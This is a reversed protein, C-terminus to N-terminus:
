EAPTTDVSEQSEEDQQDANAEDLPEDSLEVLGTVGSADSLAPLAGVWRARAIDGVGNTSLTELASQVATQLEASSVAVGVPVVEGITGAFSVSGYATALYAGSYADCVVCDVTGAELADFAENLNAFTQQTVDLSYGLLASQSVSNEQVGVRVGSLDSADVPASVSSKTFLGTASQVYSGVVMADGAEDAAVGMVVDCSEQLATTADSVTVFSVSSLGLADALAYATDIDIGMHSDGDGAIVFPATGATQVGVTLTGPTILDADSVAPVLEDRRQARAEDVSVPDTFDRVVSQIADNVETPVGPIGSCGTVLTLSLVAAAAGLVTHIRSREM